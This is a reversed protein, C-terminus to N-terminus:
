RAGRPRRASAPRRWVHAHEVQLGMGIGRDVDHDAVDGIGVHELRREGAPDVRDHVERRHGRHQARDLIRAHREVRVHGARM